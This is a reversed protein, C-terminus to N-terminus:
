NNLAMGIHILIFLRSYWVDDTFGAGAMWSFWIRIKTQPGKLKFAKGGTIITKFIAEMHEATGLAAEKLDSCILESLAM